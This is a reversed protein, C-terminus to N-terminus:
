KPTFCGKIRLHLKKPNKKEPYLWWGRFGLTTNFYALCHGEHRRREFLLGSILEFDKYICNTGLSIIHHLLHNFGFNLFGISGKKKRKKKFFSGSTTIMISLPPAPPPSPFLTRWCAITAERCRLRRKCKM